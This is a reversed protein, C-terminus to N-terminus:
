AFFHPKKVCKQMAPIIKQQFRSKARIRPTKGTILHDFLHPHPTM